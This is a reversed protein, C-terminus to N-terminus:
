KLPGICKIRESVYEKDNKYYVTGKPIVMKVIILAGDLWMKHECKAIKLNRYSHYGENILLAYKTLLPVRKSTRGVFYAYRQVAAEYGNKARWGKNFVSKYCPIDRKAVIPDPFKESVKFCM